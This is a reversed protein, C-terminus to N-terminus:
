NNLPDKSPQDIALNPILISPYNKVLGNFLNTLSNSYNIAIGKKFSNAEMQVLPLKNYTLKSERM